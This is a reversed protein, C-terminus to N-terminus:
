RQPRVVRAKPQRAVPTLKWGAPARPPIFEIARINANEQVKPFDWTVERGTPEEFWLQRIMLNSRFLVLRAETFEAKDVPFIPEVRVYHYWKDNAPPPVYTLKYRKKAEAAKMGFVFSLLGENALNGNEGLQHVRIEKTQPSWEYLYTGTFLLKEYVKKEKKNVLYLSARSAQERQGKLFKAQGEFIEVTNFTPDVSSRRIQASMSKLSNMAKEWQLLVADIKNKAPDLGPQTRVRQGSAVSTVVLTLLLCIFRRM